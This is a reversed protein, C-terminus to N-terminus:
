DDRLLPEDHPQRELRARKAEVLEDEENLGFSDVNPHTARFRALEAQLERVHPHDPGYADLLEWEAELYYDQADLLDDGKESALALRALLPPEYHPSALEYMAEAGTADGDREMAYGVRLALAAPVRHHYGGLSSSSLTIAGGGLVVRPGRMASEISRVDRYVIRHAKGFPSLRPVQLADKEFVFSHPERVYSIVRASIWVAVALVVLSAAVFPVPGLTGNAAAAAMFALSLITVASTAVPYGALQSWDTPIVFTIPAPEHLMGPEDPERATSM